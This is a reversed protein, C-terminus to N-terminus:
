PLLDHAIVGKKLLFNAFPQMEGTQVIAYARSVREYFVFREMAECQADGADGSAQMRDIVDRQLASRYGEPKGSVQMYAVPQAVAADLPLVSLVAACAERMGVGPLRVIPKGHGLSEATFNADALVIEDGHGMEGLVKLLDPSLLPDINKLM